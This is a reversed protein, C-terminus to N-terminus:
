WFLTNWNNNVGLNAGEFVCLSSIQSFNWQVGVNVLEYEESAQQSRFYKKLM